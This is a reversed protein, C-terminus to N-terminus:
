AAQRAIRARWKKRWEMILRGCVNRGVVAGKYWDYKNNADVDVCGFLSDGWWAYEVIKKDGSNLVLDRFESCCEMKRGIAIRLAEVSRRQWYESDESWGMGKLVKGGIRKAEKANAAHMLDDRDLHFGDLMLWFYLQESSNFTMNIYKIECPYLNSLVKTETRSYSNFLISDKKEYLNNSIKNNMNRIYLKLELFVFALVRISAQRAIYISVIYIPLVNVLLPIYDM